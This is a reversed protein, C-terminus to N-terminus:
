MGFLSGDGWRDWDREVVNGERFSKMSWRRSSVSGMDVGKVECESVRM